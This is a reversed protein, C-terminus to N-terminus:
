FKKKLGVKNRQIILTEENTRYIKKRSKDENTRSIKNKRFIKMQVM